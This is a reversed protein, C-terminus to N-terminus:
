CKQDKALFSFTLTTLALVIGFIFAGRFGAMMIEPHNRAQEIMINMRAVDFLVVYSLVLMYLAIGISSGANLAIKYVGSAVGQKEAPSNQMVLRNNPAIFFGMGTGLVILSIVIYVQSSGRGLFSFLIFAAAAISMGAMCLKRSGIKDALGGTFPAILMMMISPAMMIMGAQAVRIHRMMQLYFPFFFGIGIYLALGCLAALVAFTFNLNRFIKLDLLPYAVRKEQIIFLTFAAGGLVLSSLVVMDTWGARTGTNLAYLFGVLGLFLLIAGLYDFRAAAAKEQKAPLLKIGFIFVLLSLPVV